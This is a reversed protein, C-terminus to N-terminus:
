LANVFALLDDRQSASMKLVFTLLLAACGRWPTLFCKALM